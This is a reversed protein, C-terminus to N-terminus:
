RELAAMIVALNNRMIEIYGKDSTLENATTSQMSDLACIDCGTRGSAAIVSQAFADSSGEIIFVSNIEHENMATALRTVTEFDADTEAVCGDYAAHCEISYDHMLYRFPYRDAFVVTRNSIRSVAQTYEDDLLLLEDVYRDLNSKYIGENDSDLESLKDTLSNCICIAMKPSMWVHEDYENMSHEGEHIHEDSVILLDDKVTDLLSVITDKGNRRAADSVWNDSLGGIVVTMDANAVTAIDAATPQYSHIDTGNTGLMTINVDDGCIRNLWDYVPYVTCVINLKGNTSATDCGVFSSLMLMVVIILAIVKKM